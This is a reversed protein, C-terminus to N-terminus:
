NEPTMLRIFRAHRQRSRQPVLLRESNFTGSQRGCQGQRWLLRESDRDTGKAHGASCERGRLVSRIPRPRKPPKRSRGQAARTQAARCPRQGEVRKDARQSESRTQCGPRQQCRQACESPRAAFRGVSNSRTRGRKCECDRPPRGHLRCQM